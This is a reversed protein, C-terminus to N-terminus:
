SSEASGTKEKKRQEKGGRSASGKLMTGYRYASREVSWGFSCVTVLGEQKQNLVDRAVYEATRLEAAAHM